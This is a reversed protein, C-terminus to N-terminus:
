IESNGEDSNGDPYLTGPGCMVSKQKFSHINIKVTISLGLHQGM